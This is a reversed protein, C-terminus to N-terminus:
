LDRYRWYIGAFGVLLGVFGLMLAGAIPVGILNGLWAGLAAFAAIVVIVVLGAGTADVVGNRREPRHRAARPAAVPIREDDPPRLGPM